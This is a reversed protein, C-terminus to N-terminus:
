DLTVNAPLAHDPYWRGPIIPVNRKIAAGGDAILLSGTMYGADAALFTALAAIDDVEGPRTVHMAMQRAKWDPDANFKDTRTGSGSNVMGVLIANCRITPGYDYAVNVTLANLGGKAMSYAPQGPEGAITATTSINVINGGGAAEMYPIAHKIAFYPGLLAVRIIYETKATDSEAVPSTGERSLEDIPAANNVLVHLAGFANVTEAVLNKVSAEDGIDAPICVAQGGSSAIEEAVARGLKENRGTVVVAAAESAFMTAIGRGIGRNSGTVLAVKGKLRGM